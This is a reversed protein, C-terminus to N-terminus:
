VTKVTRLTVRKNPGARLGNAEVQVLIEKFHVDNRPAGGDLAESSELLDDDDLASFNYQRVTTTRTFLRFGDTADNYASDLIWRRKDQSFYSVSELETDGAPVTLDVTDFGLQTLRELESRAENTADSALKGQRNNSLSQTFMPLVGLAMILLLVAALLAEITSFGADPAAANRGARQRPDSPALTM